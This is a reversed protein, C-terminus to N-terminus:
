RTVENLQAIQASTRNNAQQTVTIAQCAVWIGIILTVTILLYRM